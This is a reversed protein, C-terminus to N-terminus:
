PFALKWSGDAVQCRHVVFRYAADAKNRISVNHQLKRCPLGQYTLTEALTVTGSNGTKPNNWSAATGIAVGQPFLTRSAQEIAAMDGEGLTFESNRFPNAADAPAAAALLMAAMLFAGAARLTTTM